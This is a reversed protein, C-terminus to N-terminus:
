SQYELWFGANMWKSSETVFSVIVEENRLNETRLLKDLTILIAAPGTYGRKETTSYYMDFRADKLEKFKLLLEEAVLDILHRTPVNVLFYSADMTKKKWVDEGLKNKMQDIMKLFGEMFLKPGLQSVDRYDQTVHHNGAQYDQLAGLSSCGASNYMHPPYKSGVSEVYSDKFYLGPTKEEEAKLVVAGGGDCLFWRLIAQNKELKAQNFYSAKLASSVLNSSCVLANKYRGNAILDSAVQLGKYTATCNSHISMEACYDIGLEQQIFASTPPCIFRDNSSGGYVILEIDNPQMGAMEIAQRAAKASMGACTENCLGTERDIAYYYNEMGLIQYMLNRTRKYWKKFEPTVEELEGLVSEIDHFKVPEGPLYAGTGAIRVPRENM